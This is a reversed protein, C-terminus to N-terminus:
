KSCAKNGLEFSYSESQKFKFKSKENLKENPMLDIVTRNMLDVTSHRRPAKSAEFSGVALYKTYNEYSLPKVIHTQNSAPKTFKFFRNKFNKILNNNEDIVQVKTQMSDTKTSSTRTSNTKSAQSVMSKTSGKAQIHNLLDM